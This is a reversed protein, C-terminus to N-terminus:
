LTRLAVVPDVRSARRAPLYYAVVGAILFLAPVAIVISMDFAPVIRLFLPRLAMRALIGGGLGVVLGVAVPLLGERLVRRRM